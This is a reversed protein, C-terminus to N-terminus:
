SNSLPDGEEDDQTSAEGAEEDDPGSFNKTCEDCTLEKGAQLSM